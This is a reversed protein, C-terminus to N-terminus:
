GRTTEGGPNPQLGSDGQTEQPDKTADAHLDLASDVGWLQM